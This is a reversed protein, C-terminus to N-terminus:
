RDEEGPQESCWQAWEIHAWSPVDWRVVEVPPWGPLTERYGVILGREALVVLTREDHGGDQNIAILGFVHRQHETLEDMFSKAPTPTDSM